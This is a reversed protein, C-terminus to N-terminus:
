GLLRAPQLGEIDARGLLWAARHHEEVALAAPPLGTMGMPQRSDWLMTMRQIEVRVYETPWDRWSYDLGLDAHHVETERRRRGPLDAMVVPGFAAIGHADWVDDGMAAFAVELRDSAALVDAVLEGPARHAGRAIDDARQELGGPYMHAVEGRRAADLMNVFGDANRAIHTLVHGVTWEPLLSARRAQEETLGAVHEALTRHAHLVGELDRDRENVSAPYGGPFM